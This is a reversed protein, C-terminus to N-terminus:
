WLWAIFWINLEFLILDKYIGFCIWAMISECISLSEKFLYAFLELIM